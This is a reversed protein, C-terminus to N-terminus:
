PATFTFHTVAAAVGGQARYFDLANTDDNDAPVFVEAIGAEAVCERLARILRSGVGQRQYDRRVALDYIFVEATASRTMPLTHATLGGIIDADDFAALAWFSDRRLLGDLYDDPLPENSGGEFDEDFVDAMMAFVDRAVSLDSQQLRRVQFEGM